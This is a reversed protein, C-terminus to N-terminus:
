IRCVLNANTVPTGVHARGIACSVPEGAAGPVFYAQRNDLRALAASGRAPNRGAIVVRAGDALARRAIALGIGATGGTVLVRQGSLGTVVCGATEDDPRRPRRHRGAQRDPQLM